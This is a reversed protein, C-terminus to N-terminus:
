GDVSKENKANGENGEENPASGEPTPRKEEPVRDPASDKTPNTDGPMQGPFVFQVRPMIEGPKLKPVSGPFMEEHMRIIAPTVYENCLHACYDAWCLVATNASTRAEKSSGTPGTARTDSLLATHIMAIQCRAKLRTEQGDLFKVGDTPYVLLDAITKQTDGLLLLGAAEALTMQEGVDELVDDLNGVPLFNALWRVLRVPITMQEAFLERQADATQYRQANRMFRVALWGMGEPNSSGGPKMVIWDRPSKITQAKATGHMGRTYEEIVIDEHNPDLLIHGGAKKPLREGWRFDPVYGVGDKWGWRLQWFYVDYIMAWPSHMLWSRMDISNDYVNQLWQALESQNNPADAGPTRPTIPAAEGGTSPEGDVTSPSSGEDTNGEATSPERNVTSPQNGEDESQQGDVASQLGGKAGAKLGIVRARLKAVEAGLMGPPDATCDTTRIMNFDNVSVPARAGYRPLGNAMSHMSIPGDDGLFVNLRPGVVPPRTYKFDVKAPPAEGDMVRSDVSTQGNNETDEPM